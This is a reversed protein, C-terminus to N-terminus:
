SPAGGRGSAAQLLLETVEAAPMPRALHYGQGLGADEQRLFALQEATEIGETVVQLGLERALHLTATIFAAARHEEPVGVLFDRDLKLTHVTLHRLRTLSSFGAGFDDIAVRVGLADIRELVPAVAVADVLASEIIEMTLTGPRLGHEAM